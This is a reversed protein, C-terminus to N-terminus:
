RSDCQAARGFSEGSSGSTTGGLLAGMKCDRIAQERRAQEDPSPTRMAELQVCQAFADTGNRFGYGECKSILFQYYAANQEERQQRMQENREARQEPTMCGALFGISFLLMASRKHFAMSKGHLADVRENAELGSGITM